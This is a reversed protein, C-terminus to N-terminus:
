LPVPVEELVRDVLERPSSLSSSAVLVIRHSLVPLAVAKVDDPIVYSRGQIAAWAQAAKQLQVGGRPSVGLATEPHERSAALIRAIFEKVPRAVEVQQVMEQMQCVEQATLVESFMPEEHESRELITVQQEDNPYGISLSMLFRDVQAHPLPFTGYADVENQTAIVWFPQGLPYTHGDVTVQREGMAELLASQTRTSARNIEDALIINGFIPGPVFQFDGRAQNYISAGTIDTPLLDPTFQIRNFAAGMSRAISRALLTKGVGPLDNLLLHGAALLATISLRLVEQRAVVVSAVNEVLSEAKHSFSVETM